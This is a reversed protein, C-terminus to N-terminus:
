AVPPLQTWAPVARAAVREQHDRATSRTCREWISSCQKVEELTVASALAADGGRARMSETDVARRLAQLRNGKTGVARVFTVEQVGDALEGLVIDASVLEPYLTSHLDRVQEPSMGPPAPLEIGLYRYHRRTERVEISM